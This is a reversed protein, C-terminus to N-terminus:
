VMKPELSDRFAMAKEILARQRLMVDTTVRESHGPGIMAGTATIRLNAALMHELPLAQAATCLNTLHGFWEPYNDYVNLEEPTV